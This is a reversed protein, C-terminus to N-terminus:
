LPQPSSEVASILKADVIQIDKDGHLVTDLHITDKDPDPRFEVHYKGVQVVQGSHGDKGGAHKHPDGEVHKEGEKVIKEPQSASPTNTALSSPRYISTM